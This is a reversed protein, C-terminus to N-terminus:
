ASRPDADLKSCATLGFQDLLTAYADTHDPLAALEANVNQMRTADRAHAAEILQNLLPEAVAFDATQPALWNATLEDRDPSRAVLPELQALYRHFLTITSRLDTELAAFDQDSAPQPLASLANDTATCLANAQDSFEARTLVPDSTPPDSAPVNSVPTNSAISTTSATVTASAPVAASATTASERLARCGAVSILLCGTVALYGIPSLRRHVRLPSKAPPTM